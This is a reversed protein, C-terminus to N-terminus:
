CGITYASTLPLESWPVTVYRNQQADFYTVSSGSDSTAVVAHGQGDATNLVMLVQNSAPSTTSPTIGSCSFYDDIFDTMESTTMGRDGITMEYALSTGYKNQLEQVFFEYTFSPNCGLQSGMYAMSHLVCDGVGGIIESLIDSGMVSMEDELQKLSLKKLKKM